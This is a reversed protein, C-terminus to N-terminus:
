WTTSRAPPFAKSTLRRSHAMPRWPELGMACAVLAKEATRRPELFSRLASGKRLKPIERAIRGARTDWDRDRDGNRHVERLPSRAGKAVGTRAEVEAEMIREAAFALMERVLDGDAQKEVLELLAMRDDTMTTEMQNM